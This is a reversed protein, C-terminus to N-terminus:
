VKRRKTKYPPGYFGILSWICQNDHITIAIIHSNFELVEINLANSWGMCIGEAKGTAEVILKESFGVCDCVKQMHSECAKTEYLFLVEPHHTRILVRLARRDLCQLHRLLEM